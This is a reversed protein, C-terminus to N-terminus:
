VPKRGLFQVVASKGSHGIGEEIDRDLEVLREIKLGEFERELAEATMMLEPVPPGGTKYDLQRPHYAELIVVGGPSLARIVKQHVRERLAIPLHCWISIVADYAGEGPDYDALDALQLTVKLGEELAWAELKGLGVASQDVATVEFGQRALYIANRGEGEALCLVRRGSKIEGVQDRLFDNPETGYHFEDKQYREDWAIAGSTGLRQFGITKM